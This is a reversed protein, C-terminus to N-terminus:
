YGTRESSYFCISLADKYSGSNIYCKLSVHMLPLIWLTTCTHIECHVPFHLLLM